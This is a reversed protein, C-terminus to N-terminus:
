WQRMRQRDGGRISNIPPPSQIPRRNRQSLALPSFSSRFAPKLKLPPLEIVLLHSRLRDYVDVADIEDEIFYLQRVSKHGMGVEEWKEKGTECEGNGIGLM